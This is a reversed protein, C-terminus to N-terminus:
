IYFSAKTCKEVVSDADSCASFRTTSPERGAKTLPFLASHPLMSSFSAPNGENVTETSDRRASTSKERLRTARDCDSRHKLDGWFSAGQEHLEAATSAPRKSVIDVIHELAADLPPTVPHSQNSAFKNAACASQASQLRVHDADCVPSQRFDGPLAAAVHCGYVDIQKAQKGDAGEATVEEVAATKSDMNTTQLAQELIRVIESRLRAGNEQLEHTAEKCLEMVSMAEQQRRSEAEALGITKSRLEEVDSALKSNSDHLAVEAAARSETESLLEVQLKEVHLRLAALEKSISQVEVKLGAVGECVGNCGQRVKADAQSAQAVEELRSGSTLSSGLISTGSANLKLQQSQAAKEAGCDDDCVDDHVWVWLSTPFFFRELPYSRRDRDFLHAITDISMTDSGTAQCFHDIDIFAQAADTCKTKKGSGTGFLGTLTKSMPQSAAVNTFAFDALALVEKGDLDAHRHHNIAMLREVMRKRSIGGREVVGDSSRDTLQVFSVSQSVLQMVAKACHHQVDFIPNVVSAYITSLQGLCFLAFFRFVTNVLGLIVMVSTAYMVSAMLDHARFFSTESHRLLSIKVDLRRELIGPQKTIVTYTRSEPKELDFYMLCVPLSPSPELRELNWASEMYSKNLSAALSKAKDKLDGAYSVCDVKVYITAGQDWIWLPLRAADGPFTSYVQKLAGDWPNYGSRDDTGMIVMLQLLQPLPIIIKEGQEYIREPMGSSNLLVTRARVKERSAYTPFASNLFWPAPVSMMPVLDYYAFVHFAQTFANFHFTKEELTRGESNNVMFKEFVRAIQVEAGRANRFQIESIGFCADVSANVPCMNTNSFTDCRFWRQITPNKEDVIPSDPQHVCMPDKNNEYAVGNSQNWFYFRGTTQYPISVTDSNNRVGAVICGILVLLQVLYYLIALRTNRIGVTRNIYVCLQM